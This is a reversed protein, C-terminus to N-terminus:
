MTLRVIVAVLWIKLWDAIWTAGYIWYSLLLSIAVIVILVLWSRDTNGRYM